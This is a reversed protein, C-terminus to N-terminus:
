FESNENKEKPKENKEEMKNNEKASTHIFKLFDLGNQYICLSHCNAKLIKNVTQTLFINEEM